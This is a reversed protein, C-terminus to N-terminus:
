AKSYNFRNKLDTIKTEIFRFSLYCWLYLGLLMLVFSVVGNHLFAESAPFAAIINNILFRNYLTPFATHFLYIGYSVRGIMNLTKNELLYKRTWESRNYVVLDIIWISIVSDVTRSFVNLKPTFGIYPVVKWAFYVAIALPVALRLYKKFKALQVADTQCYAYLGGIGFADFCCTTFIPDFDIKLIYHYVFVSIMAIFVFAICLYKLWEKRIMLLLVPWILYFQEEIALSWTHAFIIWERKKIVLFNTTYTLFYVVNDKYIPYEFDKCTCTLIFLFAIFLYYIPFIRLARRVIFNKLISLKDTNEANAKILISTILYGSLVFFLNVGFEGTPILVHQIFGLPSDIPIRPFWHWLIVLIIAFARVTDLGKIYKM